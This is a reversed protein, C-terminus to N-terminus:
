AYMRESRYTGGFDRDFAKGAEIITQLHSYSDRSQKRAALARATSVINKIQFLHTLM